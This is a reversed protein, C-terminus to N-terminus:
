SISKLPLSVSIGANVGMTRVRWGENKSSGKASAPWPKNSCTSEAVGLSYENVAGYGGTLYQYTKRVQPITGRSVARTANARHIESPILTITGPYPDSGWDNSHTVFLSGCKSAKRTVVFTTCAQAKESGLFFVALMGLGLIGPAVTKM